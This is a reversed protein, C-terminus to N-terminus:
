WEIALLLSNVLAIIVHYAVYTCLRRTEPMLYKNEEKKYKVWKKTYLKIKHMNIYPIMATMPNRMNPSLVKDWIVNFRGGFANAESIAKHVITLSM